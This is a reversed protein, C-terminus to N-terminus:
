QRFFKEPCSNIKVQLPSAKDIDLVDKVLHFGPIEPSGIFEIAPFIKYIGVAGFGVGHSSVLDQQGLEFTVLIHYDGVAFSFYVVRNHIIDFREAFERM